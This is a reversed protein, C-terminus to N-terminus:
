ASEQINKTELSHKLEKIKTNKSHTLIIKLDEEPLIEISAKINNILLGALSQDIDRDLLVCAIRVASL